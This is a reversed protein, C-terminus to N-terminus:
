SLPNWISALDPALTKTSYRAAIELSVDRANKLELAKSIADAFLNPNREKVVFGNHGSRIMENAGSVDTSVIAKGCSLMELMALSWGENHSTVVCLDAANLYSQVEGNPIFGTVFINKEIKLEKAKQFLKLRDEGDGVFIVQFDRGDKQLFVMSDLMFDWGKVWNLRGCSVIIIKDNDLNLVKREEIKSFPQFLDSDVRTPFHHILSRNLLGKSRAVVEDIAKHDASALISDVNIKNLDLFMKREFFAGFLRAWKYRSNAVPNSVGAFRYCVSNWKYNAAAFLVEPSEIFINKVCTSHIIPMSIKAYYYVVVRLPIIPKISDEQHLKGMNFFKIIKGEFPRDIWRRLPLKENTVGAVAIRGSFAHLMQRAFRAQGNKPEEWPDMCVCFIADISM